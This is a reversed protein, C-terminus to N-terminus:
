CTYFGFFNNGMVSVIEIDHLKSRLQLNEKELEHLKDCRGRAGTLQEELMSKTELLTMNDERLEQACFLSLLSFCLSPCFSFILLSLSCSSLLSLSPQWHCSLAEASVQPMIDSFYFCCPSETPLQVDTVECLFWNRGKQNFHHTALKYNMSKWVIVFDRLCM